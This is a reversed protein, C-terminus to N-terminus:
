ERVQGNGDKQSTLCLEGAHSCEQLLRVEMWEDPIDVVCM